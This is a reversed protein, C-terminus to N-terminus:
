NGGGLGPQGRKKWAEHKRKAEASQTLNFPPLELPQRGVKVVFEPRPKTKEVKAYAGDLRDIGEYNNKLLGSRERWEITVVYEGEPAGDQTIYSTIQFAGNEDTVAYPTVRRPHNDDFTRNLYILCDGAPQGNVLVKGKVPYVKHFDPGGCSVLTLALLAVVVRLGGRAPCALSTPLM